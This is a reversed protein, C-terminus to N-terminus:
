ILCIIIKPLKYYSIFEVRKPDVLIFRLEEPGYKYLLSIILTSLCISKGSGTTGAVLLHPMKTIDPCVVQGEVNKGLTFTLSNPKSNLFTSSALMTKLGVVCRSSNPVEISIAGKSYNLYANVNEKMLAMAIAERYKLANKINTRDEIIVDYRTIAPGVVVNSIRSDIRYDALTDCIIQKSEEIEATNVNTNEPYDDLLDLSPRVYKKWVHKPKEEQVPKPPEEVAKPPEVVPKRVPAEETKREPVAREATQGSETNNGRDVLPMQDSFLNGGSEEEDFLNERSRDRRSRDTPLVSIDPEVLRESNLRPNSSSFLDFLSGGRERPKEAPKPAEAREPKAEEPAPAPAAPPTFRDTEPEERVPESIIPSEDAKLDYPNSEARPRSPEIFDPKIEPAPTDEVFASTSKEDVTYSSYDDEAQPKEEYLPRDGM